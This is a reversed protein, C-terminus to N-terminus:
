ERVDEGQGLVGHPGWNEPGWLMEHISQVNEPGLDVEAGKVWEEWRDPRFYLHPALSYNVLDCKIPAQADHRCAQENDTLVVTATIRDRLWDREATLWLALEGSAALTAAHREREDRLEDALAQVAESARNLFDGYDSDLACAIAAEATQLWETIDAETAARHRRM